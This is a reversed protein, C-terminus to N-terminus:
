GWRGWDGRIGGTIGTDGWRCISNKLLLDKFILLIVIKPIKPFNPVGKKVEVLGNKVSTNIYTENTGMTM